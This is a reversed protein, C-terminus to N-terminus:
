LVSSSISRKQAATSLKPLDWSEQVELYVPLPLQVLKPQKSRDLWNLVKLLDDRSMATCGATGSGDENWIHLFIASGAGRKPNPFNHNIVCGFEYVSIESMKESSQWDRDPHTKTDVIQNYYRSLPDDIAEITETLPIYDMNLFPSAAYGFHPGLTFIGAPSKRDGEKKHPGKMLPHLGIGFAMGKEGFVAPLSGILLGSEYLQLSGRHSEWDPTLAILIQSHSM